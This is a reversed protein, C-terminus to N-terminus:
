GDRHPVSPPDHVAATSRDARRHLRGLVFHSLGRYRTLRLALVHAGLLLGIKVLIVALIANVAWGTWASTALAGLLGLHVAVFLVVAAVLVAAKIRKGRGRHTMAGPGADATSTAGGPAAAAVDSSHWTVTLQDRRGMTELRHAIRDQLKRLSDKDAAEARLTLVGAAAQLVCRGEGFSIVGHTDSSEVHEVTPPVHGGGRARPWHHQGMQNAHQCLQVLYRSARDTEVLAEAIPM